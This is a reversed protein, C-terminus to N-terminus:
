LRRSTGTDIREVAEAMPTGDPMTGSPTVVPALIYPLATAALARSVGLLEEVSAFTGAKLLDIGTGALV